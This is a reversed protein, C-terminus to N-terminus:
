PVFIGQRLFVTNDATEADGDPGGDLIEVDGLQWITRRTEKVTGPTLADATTSLSCNSGINTDGTATCPVIFTYPADAVTATDNGSDGNLRDTIRLVIRAQLEGTYDTLTTKNRIDKTTVTVKVDAEDAPTTTVGPTVSFRV